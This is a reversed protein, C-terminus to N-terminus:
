EFCREEVYRWKFIKKVLWKATNDFIYSIVMISLIGVFVLDTKGRASSQQIMYGLGAGANISEVVACYTFGIGFCMIFSNLISPLMSPLQIYWIAQLKNMGITYGTDLLDTNIEELSLLVSPMMYVFTAIFLFTIKMQEEIGFWMILLPYFATIPIFRLLSMLPNITYKFFNFNYILLGLPLAVIGALSSAILIRRFTYLAATQLQGNLVLVKINELVTIPSPIFLPNAKLSAVYWLIFLIIFTSLTILRNKMREDEKNKINIILKTNIIASGRKITLVM